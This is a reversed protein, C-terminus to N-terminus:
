QPLTPSSISFEVALFAALEYLSQRHTHYSYLRMSPSLGSPLVLGDDDNGDDDSDAADAATPHDSSHQGGTAAEQEEGHAMQKQERRRKRQDSVAALFNLRIREPLQGSMYTVQQETGITRGWMQRDALTRLRAVLPLDLGALPRRRELVDFGLADTVDKLAERYELEAGGPLRIPRPAFNPVACAAALRALLRRSSRRRLLRAGERRDWRAADAALRARCAGKRPELLADGEAPLTYVPVPPPLSPPYGRPAAGAPFLGHAMAAGSQLTRDEAVARVYVARDDFHAPLFGSPVYASRLLQGLRRLERMGTGTLGAASINSSAYWELHPAFSPCAVATIANPARSGHRSVTQVSLLTRAGLSGVSLAPISSTSSSSSSAISAGDDPHTDALAASEDHHLDIYSILAAVVALLLLSLVLPLAWERRRSAGDDHRRHSSFM